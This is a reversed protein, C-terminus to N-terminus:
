RLRAPPARASEAPATVEVEVSDRLSRERATVIGVVTYRGPDLGEALTAEYALSDGPALEESGLAQTFFRGESWRRVAEGGVGRVVFDFRQGSSFELRLPESGPNRLLLRLELASGTALEPGSAVRVEVTDAAAGSAGAREAGRGGCASQLPLLALALLLPLPRM